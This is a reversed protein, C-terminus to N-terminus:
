NLQLGDPSQRYNPLEGTEATRENSVTQARNCHALAVKRDLMESAKALDTMRLPATRGTKHVQPNTNWYRCPVKPTPPCPQVTRDTIPYKDGNCETYM